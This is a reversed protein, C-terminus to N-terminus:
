GGQPEAPPPCQFTVTLPEGAVSAVASEVISRLRADLLDRGAPGQVWITLGGDNRIAATNRLHTEYTARSMRGKLIALCTPWPSWGEEAVPRPVKVEKRDFVEEQEPQTYNIPYQETGRPPGGGDAVQAVQPVTPTGPPGAPPGGGPALLTYLNSTRDGSKDIRQEIRVLGAAELTRLAAQVTTRSIGYEEAMHRISPFSQGEANAHHALECYVTVGYAGITAGYRELVDNDVWFWGRPRKDVLQDAM